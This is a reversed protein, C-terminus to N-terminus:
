PRGGLVEAVWADAAAVEEDSWAGHEQQYWATFDRAARRRLERSATAAIWASLSLGDADAAARIEADLEPPLSISMKVVRSM